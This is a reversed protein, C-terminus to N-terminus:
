SRVAKVRVIWLAVAMIVAALSALVLDFTTRTLISVFIERITVVFGVEAIGVIYTEPRRHSIIISRMIEAFIILMFVDNVLVQLESLSSEMSLSSLDRVIYYTAFVSMVATAIIVVFEILTIASEGLKYIYKTLLRLNIRM